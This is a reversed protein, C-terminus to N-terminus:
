NNEYSNSIGHYINQYNSFFNLTVFYLEITCVFVAQAIKVSLHVSRKRWSVHINIYAIYVRWGAIRIKKKQLIQHRLNSNKSRLEFDLIYFGM